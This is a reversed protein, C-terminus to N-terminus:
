NLRTKECNFAKKLATQTSYNQILSFYHPRTAYLMNQKVFEFSNWYFPSIKSRKLCFLFLLIYTLAFINYIENRISLHLFILFFLYWISYRPSLNQRTPIFVYQQKQQYLGLRNFVWNISIKYLATKTFLSFKLSFKFM